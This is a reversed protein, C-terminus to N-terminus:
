NGARSALVKPLEATYKKYTEAANELSMGPFLKSLEAQTGASLTAFVAATEQSLEKAPTTPVKPSMADAQAKLFTLVFEVGREKADKECQEKAAPSLKGETLLKTTLQQLETNMGDIRAKETAAKITALETAGTQWATLRGLVAATKPEGVIKVVDKRFARLSAIRKGAVSMRAAVTANEGEPMDAHEESEEAAWQEFSKLMSETAASLDGHKAVLAAHQDSLQKHEQLLQDNAAKLAGYSEKLTNLHADTAACRACKQPQDTETGMTNDGQGDTTQEGDGAASTAAVLPELDNIAPDNTLAVRLLALVEKTEPDHLFTPSFFRYEGAELMARARETWKVNEVWLEPGGAANMRVVPTMETASAPAVMPPLGASPADTQHEYDGMLPLKREAYWSMVAQASRPSFVFTGKTTTFSGAPFVRFESPAVRAGGKELGFDFFGRAM